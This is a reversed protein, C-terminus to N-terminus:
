RRYGHRRCRCSRVHCARIRRARRRCFQALPLSPTLPRSTQPRRRRRRRRPDQCCRRLCPPPLRSPPSSPPPPTTSRRRHSRRRRPAKRSQAGAGDVICPYFIRRAGPIGYLPRLRTSPISLLHGLSSPRPRAPAPHPSRARMLRSPPARVQATTKASHHAARPRARACWLSAHARQTTM